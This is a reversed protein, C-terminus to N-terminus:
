TDFPRTLQPVGGACRVAVTRRDTASVFTLQVVPAPGRHVDDVRYGPAPSWSQLYASAGTCSATVVGAGTTFQRRLTAPPSPPQSTPAASPRASPTSSPTPSAAADPTPTGTTAASGVADAVGNQLVPQPAPPQVDGGVGGIVTLALMGVAVSSAAGATWAIVGTGIRRASSSM